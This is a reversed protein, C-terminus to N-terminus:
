ASAIDVVVFVVAARSAARAKSTAPHLLPLDLGAGVLVSVVVNGVLVLTTVLVSGGGGLVSVLVTVGDGLVLVSVTGAVGLM